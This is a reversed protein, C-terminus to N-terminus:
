LSVSFMKRFKVNPNKFGYFESKEVVRYSWGSYKQEIIVAVSGSVKIILKPHFTNNESFTPESSELVLTLQNGNKLKDVEKLKVGTVLLASLIGELNNGFTVETRPGIPRKVGMADALWGILMQNRKQQFDIHNEFRAQYAAIIKEAESTQRPENLASSQLVGRLHLLTESSLKGDKGSLLPLVVENLLNKIEGYYDFNTTLLESKALKASGYAMLAVDLQSSMTSFYRDSRFAVRFSNSLSRASIVYEPILHKQKVKSSEYFMLKRGEAKYVGFWFPKSIEYWKMQQYEGNYHHICQTAFSTNSILAISAITSFLFINKFNKLEKHKFASRVNFKFM